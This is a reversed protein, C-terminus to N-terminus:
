FEPYFRYVTGDLSNITLKFLILFILLSLVVMGINIYCCIRTHKRLKRVTLSLLAFIVTGAWVAVSLWLLWFSTATSTDAFAIIFDFFSMPPYIMSILMSQYFTITFGLLVYICPSIIGLVGTIFTLVQQKTIKLQKKLDNRDWLWEEEVNFYKCLEEVNSDNPIGLGSEWKAIASRSVFIEKALVEQSLGYQQRLSKLRDKFEM